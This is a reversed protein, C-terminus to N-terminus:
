TRAHSLLNLQVWASWPEEPLWCGRSAGLSPLKLIRAVQSLPQSRVLPYGCLLASLILGLGAGSGLRDM